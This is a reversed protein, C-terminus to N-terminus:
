KLWSTEECCWVGFYGKSGAVLM